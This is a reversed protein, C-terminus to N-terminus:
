EKAYEGRVEDYIQITKHLMQEFRFKQEYLDRGGAGLASRLPSDMLLKAIANRLATPDGREVLIGTQGDIVQERVGGVDSAIVPLGARMAEVISRPLGEWHSSLVFMASNALHEAVNDVAGLFRIRDDIGLQQALSFSEDQLPGDGICVLEWPLDVLLSLARFLSTHDKQREFRAVMIIQPVAANQKARYEAPVEPMGNHIAAYKEPRGVGHALGCARDNESVTIIKSALPAVMKEARAFIKAKLLPVGDTFAWGHATFVTPVGLRFGAVRGLWGAKSSHTSILDPAFTRLARKLLVYARIDAVPHIARQMSPICEFHIGRKELAQLFPGEGGVFVKVDHGREQLASCMDMIHIQVGGIADARTTVYAIKM